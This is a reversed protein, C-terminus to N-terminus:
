CFFGSTSVALQDYWFHFCNCKTVTAAPTEDAGEGAAAPWVAEQLAYSEKAKQRLGAILAGERDLGAIQRAM